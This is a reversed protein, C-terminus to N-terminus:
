GANQLKMAYNAKLIDKDDCITEVFLIPISNSRAMDVGLFLSSDFYSLFFLIHPRTKPIFQLSSFRDIFHYSSHHVLSSSDETQPQTPPMLCQFLM